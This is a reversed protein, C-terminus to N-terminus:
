DIRAFHQPPAHAADALRIALRSEILAEVRRELDASVRATEVAIRQELDHQEGAACEAKSATANTSPLEARATAAALLFTAALCEILKM